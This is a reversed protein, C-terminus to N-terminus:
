ERGRIGGVWCWWAVMGCSLIPGAAPMLVGKAIGDEDETGPLGRASLMLLVEPAVVCLPRVMNELSGSDPM